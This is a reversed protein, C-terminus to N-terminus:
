VLLWSLLSEATRSAQLASDHEGRMWSLQTKAAFIAFNSGMKNVDEFPLVYGKRAAASFIISTKDSLGVPEQLRGVTFLAAVVSSEREFFM